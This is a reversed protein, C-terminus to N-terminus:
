FDSITIIKPVKKTEFIFNEELITEFARSCSPPTLMKKSLFIPQYNKDFLIQLCENESCFFPLLFRPFPLLSSILFINEEPSGSPLIPFFTTTKKTKKQFFTEKGM